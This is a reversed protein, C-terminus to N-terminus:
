KWLLPLGEKKGAFPDAAPKKVAAIHQDAAPREGKEGKMLDPDLGDPYAGLVKFDDSHSLCKHGVGAPIVLIDGANVRLEEGKEGGMKLLATGSFCGLVEHTNSHYHHYPYVGWRWSNTWDNAAFRDDLWDGGENGREAFVNQYVLLPYKSNPIIGDDEFYFTLPAPASM